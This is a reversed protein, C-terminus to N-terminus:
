QVSGDPGLRIVIADIDGANAASTLEGDTGGTIYLIGQSGEAISGARLEADTGDAKTAEIRRSWIINGDIDFKYVVLDATSPGGIPDPPSTADGVSGYNIIGGDSTFFPNTYYSTTDAASNDCFRWLEQTGDASYKAVLGDSGPFQDFNSLGNLYLTDDPAVAVRYFRGSGDAGCNAFADPERLWIDGGTDADLKALFGCRQCPRMSSTDWFEGSIVVNGTSDFDIGRPSIRSTDAIFFNVADEMSTPLERQWILTGDTGSVKSVLGSVVVMPDAPDVWSLLYIDGDDDVASWYARAALVLGGNVPLPVGYVQTGDNNFRFLNDGDGSQIVYYGDGQPRLFLGRGGNDNADGFQAISTQNGRRDTRRVFSDGGGANPTSGVQGDTFGLQLQSDDSLVILGNTAFADEVASGFQQTGVWGFIEIDIAAPTSAEAADSATVAFSDAGDQAADPTYVFAGTAVDLSTVTGKTPPTSVAFTLTDGDADSAGITGSVTGIDSTTYSATQVTPQTNVTVSVTATNSIAFGDSANFTFTDVGAFAGNPTYEFDQGGTGSLTVSGNAPNGLLLFTLADGDADSASMTGTVAIGPRTLASVDTATPANNEVTISVAATNSTAVGDSASFTFTDVGVFGGNPTYEFDQDGTGSLTVSGNAPNGLLSFTLADGDADSASMTGAVAIGPRTLASVDTATPANNEVTISVAATNSTAAGDSANFTFTDVGAFGSNPTYEFDQDGTGSLTVSGNAPNGVLSFTLADGDADSASM